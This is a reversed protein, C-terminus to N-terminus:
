LRRCRRCGGLRGVREDGRGGGVAVDQQADAADGAAKAGLKQLESVKEKDLDFVTLSNGTELFRRGIASGMAGAGILGIEYIM